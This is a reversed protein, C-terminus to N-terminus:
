INLEQMILIIFNFEFYISNNNKLKEIIVETKSSGDFKSVMKRNMLSAYIFTSNFYYSEVPFDDKPFFSPLMLYYDVQNSAVNDIQIQYKPLTYFKGDVPNPKNDKTIKTVLDKDNMWQNVLDKDTEQVAFYSFWVQSQRAAARILLNAGDDTVVFLESM